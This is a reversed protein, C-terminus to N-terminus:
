DLRLYKQENTKCRPKGEFFGAAFDSFTYDRGVGYKVIFDGAHLRYFTGARSFIPPPTEHNRPKATM